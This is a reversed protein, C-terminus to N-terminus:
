RQLLRGLTEIADLGTDRFEAVSGISGIGEQTALNLGIAFIGLRVVVVAVVIKAFAKLISKLVM